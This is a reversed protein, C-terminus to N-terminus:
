WWHLFLLRCCLDKSCVWRLGFIRQCIMIWELWNFIAQVTASTALFPFLACWYYLCSSAIFVFCIFGLSDFLPVHLFVQAAKVDAVLKKFSDEANCLFDKLLAPCDRLDKRSAYERRTMEMGKELEHM